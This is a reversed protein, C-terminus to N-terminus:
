LWRRVSACYARYADGFKAELYAEEHRIAIRQIVLATVPVLLLAWPSALLLGLGAQALVMGLYMPNRTYRYLGDIELAPSPSWPTPNQGVRRFHGGAVALLAAGAVLALPGLGLRLMGPLPGFLPGVIRDLALGVGLAIMPVLPPPFRVAAGAEEPGGEAEAGPGAPEETTM